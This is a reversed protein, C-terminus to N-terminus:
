AIAQHEGPASDLRPEHKTGAVFGAGKRGVPGDAGGFDDGRDVLRQPNRVREFEVIREFAGINQHRPAFREAFHERSEIWSLAQVQQWTPPQILPTRNALSSRGCSRAAAKTSM